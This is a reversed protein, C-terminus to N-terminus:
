HLKWKLLDKEMKLDVDQSKEEQTEEGKGAKSQKPNRIVEITFVATTQTLIKAKTTKMM